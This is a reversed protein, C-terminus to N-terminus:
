ADISQQREIEYGKAKLEEKDKDIIRQYGVLVMVGILLPIDDIRELKVELEKKGAEKNQLSPIKMKM